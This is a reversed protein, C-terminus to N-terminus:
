GAFGGAGQLQRARIGGVEDEAVDGHGAQVTVAHELGELGVGQRGATWHDEHGGVFVKALAHPSEAEADDVVHGFRERAFDQQALYLPHELAPVLPRANPLLAPLRNGAKEFLYPRTSSLV